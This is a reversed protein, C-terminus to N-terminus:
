VFDARGLAPVEGVEDIYLPSGDLRIIDIPAQPRDFGAGVHWV